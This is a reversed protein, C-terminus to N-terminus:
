TGVRGLAHLSEEARGPRRRAAGAIRAGDPVNVWRLPPSLDAGDCTYRNPIPAADGFASSELAFGAM